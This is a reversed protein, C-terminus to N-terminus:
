SNGDVVRAKGRQLALFFAQGKEPSLEAFLAAAHTASTGFLPNAIAVEGEGWYPDLLDFISQPHREVPVLATNVLIVRARAAFGTWYHEPDKFRAPIQSASPADYPALIDQDKLLITQAIESSLFVHSRPRSREAVLRSVLGTTKAAEVDYVPQVKIGTAGEFDRLIPESLPQDLSTYITVSDSRGLGCASLLAVLFLMSILATIRALM